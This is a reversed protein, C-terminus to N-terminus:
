CDPERGARPHPTGPGEPWARAFCKVPGDSGMSAELLGALPAVPEMSRCERAELDVTTSGSRVAVTPAALGGRRDAGLVDRQVAVPVYHRIDQAEDQQGEGLGHAPNNAMGDPQVEALDHARNDEMGVAWHAEQCCDEGLGAQDVEPSDPSCGLGHGARHEEGAVGVLDAV